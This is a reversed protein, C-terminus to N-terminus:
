FQQHVAVTTNASLPCFFSTIMPDMNKISHESEGVLCTFLLRKVCPSQNPARQGACVTIWGERHMCYTHTNIQIQCFHRAAHLCLCGLDAADSVEDETREKREATNLIM